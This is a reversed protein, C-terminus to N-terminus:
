RSADASSALLDGLDDWGLVRALAEASVGEPTLANPDAGHKLFLRVAKTNGALAHHHLQTWGREDELHLVEPERALQESYKKAMNIGM